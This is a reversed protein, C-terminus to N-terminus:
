GLLHGFRAKKTALYGDNVGNAAFLHSVRGEVQIGCAALGALKDPNNTLLRIRPIGLAELMTAAVRFGREDAGYGLARNADLTDLGADQLKYARLKNVLGIGRGEQALYLLVGGTPEQAMRAIAGRLQPGCDCRLSGLLDGTFCESHIRCLPAASAAEPQGVLIALHEIGGDAARFAVIRAQPADELPVSAEAVRTLSAAASAPYALVDQVQVELLGLRAAVPASAPAAVLAPLLRGIKALSIAAPSLAQAFGTASVIQPAEPLLQEAVPDALRRLSEPALLGPSLRLSVPAAEAASSTPVPRSLIAAARSASLLLVPSALAAEALEALGRAGVTEAAALVLSEGGASLIVPTGRRLESVVRHVARMGGTRPDPAPGTGAM